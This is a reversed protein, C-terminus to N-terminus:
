SNSEVISSRRVSSSYDFATSYSVAILGILVWFAIASAPVQWAYTTTADLAGAVLAAFLALGLRRYTPTPGRAALNLAMVTAYALLALFVAIGLFGQEVAIELYENHVEHMWRDYRTARIREPDNWYAPAATEYNGAGVGTVPHAFIMRSATEWGILRIAFSVQRIAFLDSGKVQWARTVFWGGALGILVLAVAAWLAVRWSFRPGGGRQLWIIAAALMALAVSAVFALTAMRAGSFSLHYLMGALMLAALVRGAWHRPTVLLVVAIPIAYILYSASFTAHGLFSVGRSLPVEVNESWPFFDYGHHQAIGYGAIATGALTVTWLLQDRGPADRFENVIVFFVALLGLYGSVEYVVLGPNIAEAVSAIHTALFALAIWGLLTIRIGLNGQWARVVFWAALAAPAGARLIFWKPANIDTLPVLFLIAALLVFLFFFRVGPTPPTSASAPPHM